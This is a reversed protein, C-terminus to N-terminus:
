KMLDMARHQKYKIIPFLFPDLGPILFLLFLAPGIRLPLDWYVKPMYSFRRQASSYKGTVFSMAAHARACNINKNPCPLPVNRFGHM